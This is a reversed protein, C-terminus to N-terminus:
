EGFSEPDFQVVGVKSCSERRQVEGFSERFRVLAPWVRGMISRHPFRALCARIRGLKTSIAGAKALKAWLQDSGCWSHGIDGLDLSASHLKSRTVVTPAMNPRWLAFNAVNFGGGVDALVNPNGRTRITQPRDSTRDPRFAARFRASLSRINVINQTKGAGVADRGSGAFNAPVESMPEAALMRAPSVSGRAFGLSPRIEQGISSRAHRPRDGYDIDFLPGKSSDRVSGLDLRLEGCTPWVSGCKSADLEFNTSHPGDGFPQLIPGIRGLDPRLTALTSCNAVCEISDLRLEAM